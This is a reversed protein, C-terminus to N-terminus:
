DKICRVSFGYQKYVYDTSVKSIGTKLNKFWAFTLQYPTSTWWYGQFGIEDFVGSKERCGGPMGSYENENIDKLDNEKWFGLSKMKEGAIKKGGLTNELENWEQISPVHWGVPCLKRPDEVAFWNYLKGFKQDYDSENSYVSYAGRSATLWEKNKLGSLINSSDRYRSTRLNEMMWFQNGIKVTKYVYGDIDICIFESKAIVKFMLNDGRLNDRDALVDWLISKNNGPKVGKGVDGTVARAPGLWTSGNDLSYHLSVTYSGTGGSFNYSVQLNNEVQKVDYVEISQAFACNTFLSLFFTFLLRM